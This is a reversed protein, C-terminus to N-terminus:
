RCLLVSVDNVNTGTAGTIILSDVAKLAAYANNDALEAEPKVGAKRMEEATKGDVIGGAADTPGDTGDSGVSFFVASDLGEMGLAASLAMEQNRGGKGGGSVHVVTEGGSILACPRKFPLTSPDSSNLVRHALEAFTQGAEKAEGDLRTTLVYPHYGLGEAAHAAAECLKEVNGAIFTECNPVAKPTEIELTERVKARMELGYKEIIAQVERVTSSDPFAPGSAIVDLRDGIVDSLVIAVIEADTKEALRGGKVQSLHKRVANIEDIAAGRKLLQDTLAMLDELRVGPMPKEFLASGGGSLLLLLRDKATLSEILSLAKEAGLLSNEDPIPHGSEIIEFGPITGGAHNYKTIVLGKGIKGGLVKQATSAMNWAAKGIAVAYLKKDSFDRETLVREVASDPLVAKIAERIIIKADSKM